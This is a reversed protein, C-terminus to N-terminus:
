ASQLSPEHRGAVWTGTVRIGDSEFAVLDARYGPAIRGLRDGLGLFEAPSRSALRLAQTLPLDLLGVCNRVAAAMDIASGALTGDATTCRGDRTYIARGQLSFDPNKGGVCPMADTVLMASGLGRLALRLMAPAVHFGDVILGYWCSATELAAGAPGPERATLPRMANFLHTFGTVGDRLASGTEDYTANSHGLAVRVGAKVLAQLFGDPLVEPALTVLTVASPLGTVLERHFTDPRRILGPNHVGPKEPSLFPGEYHIGLVGPEDQMAREVADRAHRMTSDIDTILTPLMSTTGFQRHAAVITKIGDPTPNDNFLVDGGGNVQVDIFGPALWTDDPLEHVSIGAPHERNPLVAAIRGGEVVVTCNRHLNEGDFVTAASIAFRSQTM